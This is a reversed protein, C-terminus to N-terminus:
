GVDGKANTTSGSEPAPPAVGLSAYWAALNAIDEDTLDAAFTMMVPDTRTGARFARLQRALYGARQGALHPWVENPSVGRDGHCGACDAARRQGAAIDAAHATGMFTAITSAAIALGLGTKM